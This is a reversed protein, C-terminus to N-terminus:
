NSGVKNDGERLKAKAKDILDQTIGKRRIRQSIEELPQNIIEDFGKEIEDPTPIADHKDEPSSM